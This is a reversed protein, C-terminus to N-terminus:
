EEFFVAFIRKAIYESTIEKDKPVSMLAYVKEKRGIKAPLVDGPELVQVGSYGKRPAVFPEILDNGDYVSDLQTIWPMNMIEDKSFSEGCIATVEILMLNREGDLIIWADDYADPNDTAGRLVRQFYDGDKGRIKEYEDSAGSIEGRPLEFTQNGDLDFGAFIFSGEKLEDEEWSHPAVQFKAVLGDENSVICELTDDSSNLFNVTRTLVIKESLSDSDSIVVEDKDPNGPGIYILYASLAGLGIAWFLVPVFFFDHKRKVGDEDPDTFLMALGPLLLVIATYFCSWGMFSANGLRTDDYWYSVIWACIFFVIPVILGFGRWVFLM